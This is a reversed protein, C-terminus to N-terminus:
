QCIAAIELELITWKAQESAISFDDDQGHLILIFQSM